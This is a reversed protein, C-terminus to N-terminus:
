KTMKKKNVLMLIMDSDRFDKMTDFLVGMIHSNEQDPKGSFLFMSINRGDKRLVHAILDQAPLEDGSRQDNSEESQQSM